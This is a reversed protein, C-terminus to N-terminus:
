FAAGVAGWSSLQWNLSARCSVSGASDTRCCTPFNEGSVGDFCSLSYTGETTASFPDVTGTTVWGASTFSTAIRCSTQGNRVNIRCCAPFSNGASGHVCSSQYGSQIVSGGVTISGATLLGGVSATGTASLTPASVTSSFTGAGTVSVNGTFASPAAVSVASGVPGVKAELWEKLQAFNHNVQTAVAPQNPAFCFPMGNPCNGNAAMATGVTAAALLGLAAVAFRARVRRPQNLARLEEELQSLRQM